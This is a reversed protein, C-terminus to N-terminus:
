SMDVQFFAASQTATDRKGLGWGVVGVCAFVAMWLAANKWTTM